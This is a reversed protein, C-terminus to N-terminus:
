RERAVVRAGAQADQVRGRSQRRPEVELGALSQSGPEAQYSGQQRRLARAQPERVGTVQEFGLQAQLWGCDSGNNIKSFATLRLHIHILAFSVHWPHVLVM